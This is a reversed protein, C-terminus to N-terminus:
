CAPRPADDPLEHFEMRSSSASDAGALTVDVTYRGMRRTSRVAKFNPHEITLEFRPAAFLGSLTFCGAADTEIPQSTWPLTVQAGGLPLGNSTHVRGALVYERDCPVFWCICASCALAASAAAVLQWIRRAAIATLAVRERTTVCRGM